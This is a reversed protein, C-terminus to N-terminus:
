EKKDLLDWFYGLFNLEISKSYGLLGAGVRATIQVGGDIRFGDDGWGARVYLGGFSLGVFQNDTGDIETYREYYAAGGDVIISSRLQELQNGHVDNVEGSQNIAVYLAKGSIAKGFAFSGSEISGSINTVTTIEEVANQITPSTAFIAFLLLSVVLLTVWLEGSPDINM